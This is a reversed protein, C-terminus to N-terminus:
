LGMREMFAKNLENSQERRIPQEPFRIPFAGKCIRDILRDTCKLDEVRNNSTFITLLGNCMRYDILKFLQMEYWEKPPSTGIDDLVLLECTLYQKTKDYEGREAKMRESLLAFYDPVSIFRMQINYRIMLSRALCSALFTKGSGSTSSWLYLGKNEKQWKEFENYFNSIVKHIQKAKDIDEYLSWKFKSMDADCYQSPIGTIDQQRLEGSCRPCPKVFEVERDDGYVERTRDNSAWYWIRHTGKCDPCVYKSSESQTNGRGSETTVREM